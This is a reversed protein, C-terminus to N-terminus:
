FPRNHLQTYCRRIWCETAYGNDKVTVKQGYPLIHQPVSTSTPPMSQAYEPRINSEHHGQTMSPVFDPQPTPHENHQQNGHSHYPPHHQHSATGLTAPDVDPFLKNRSQPRPTIKSQKFQEKIFNTLETVTQNTAMLDKELSQINERLNNMNVLQTQQLDYKRQLNKIDIAIQQIQKNMTTVPTKSILEALDTQMLTIKAQLRGIDMTNAQTQAKTGEGPGATHIETRMKKIDHDLEVHTVYLCGRNGLSELLQSCVNHLSHLKAQVTEAKRMEVMIKQSTNNLKNCEATALKSLEM